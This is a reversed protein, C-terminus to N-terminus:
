AGDRQKRLDELLRKVGEVDGISAKGSTWDVVVPWKLANPNQDKLQSLEPAESPASPHASLFVSSSASPSVYSKITQLQEATPFSEVVELNFNLPAKSQGGPPYPNTLSSRLLELARKSSASSSNHSFMM